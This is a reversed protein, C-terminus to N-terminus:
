KASFATALIAAVKLRAAPVDKQVIDWLLRSDVGFYGHVIVDRLGAMKRWPVDQYRERLDEPLRKTAEGILELNRAVADIVKEDSLFQDYTLGVTYRGIKDCCALIDDMFLRPDRSV